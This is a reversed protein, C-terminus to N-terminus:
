NSLFNKKKHFISRLNEAVKAEEILSLPLKAKDHGYYELVSEPINLKQAIEKIPQAPVSQAIELDTM